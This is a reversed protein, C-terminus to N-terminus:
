DQNKREDFFLDFRQNNSYLVAKTMQIGCLVVHSDERNIKAESM